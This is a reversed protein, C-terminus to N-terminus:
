YSDFTEVKFRKAMSLKYNGSFTQFVSKQLLATEQLSDYAREGAKLVTLIAQTAPSPQHGSLAVTSTSPAGEELDDLGGKAAPQQRTGYGAKLPPSFLTESLIKVDFYHM